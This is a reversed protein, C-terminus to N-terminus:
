DLTDFGTRWVALMSIDPGPNDWAESNEPPLWHLPPEEQAQADERWGEAGYNDIPHHGWSAAVGVNDPEEPIIDGNTPRGNPEATTPSKLKGKTKEKKGM